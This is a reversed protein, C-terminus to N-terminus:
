KGVPREKDGVPRGLYYPTAAGPTNARQSVGQSGTRNIVDRSGGTSNPLGMYYPPNGGPNPIKLLNKGGAAVVEYKNGNISVYSVGNIIAALRYKKGGLKVTHPRGGVGTTDTPAGPSPLKKGALRDALRNREQILAILGKKANGRYAAPMSAMASRMTQIQRDLEKIAARLNKREIASRDIDAGSHDRSPPTNIGASGGAAQPPTRKNDAASLPSILLAALFTALIINTINM